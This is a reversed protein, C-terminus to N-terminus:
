IDGLKIVSGPLVWRSKQFLCALPEWKGNDTM